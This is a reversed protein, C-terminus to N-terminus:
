CRLLRESSMEWTEGLIDWRQSWSHGHYRPAGRGLTLLWGCLVGRRVDALVSPFFWSINPRSTMLSLHKQEVQFLDTMLVAKMGGLTSYFTCVLGPWSFKWKRWNEDKTADWPWRNRHSSGWFSPWHCRFTGFSTCLACNRVDIHSHHHTHYCQYYQNHNYASERFM